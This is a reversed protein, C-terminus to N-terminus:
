GFSITIHSFAWLIFEIFAWGIVASIAFFVFLASGFGLDGFYM